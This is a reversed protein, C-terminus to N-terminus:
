FATSATSSGPASVVIQDNEVIFDPAGHIGYQYYLALTVRECLQDFDRFLLRAPHDCRLIGAEDALEVHNIRDIDAPHTHWFETQELQLDYEIQLLLSRTNKDAVSVVEAPINKLLQDKEDLAAFNSDLVWSAARALKRLNVSSARFQKSGILKAEYLDADFEMQRSMSRTMRIHLRLLMAFLRSIKDMLFAAIVLAYQLPAYEVTELWQEIKQTWYDRGSACEALWSSVRNIWLYAMMSKPQNFHGFEHAIVGLLQQVSSGAVLSLGLILKMKGRALSRFGNVPAAAANVESNLEVVEPAPVGMAKAMADIVQYFERHHKRELVVKKGSDPQPWLPYLLFLVLLGGAILPIALLLLWVQSTLYYKRDSFEGFLQAHGDTVYWIVTLLVALIVSGYIAPALLASVLAQLVSKKYHLSKEAPKLPQEFVGNLEGFVVASSVSAQPDKVTYAELRVDLGIERFRDCVRLALGQDM